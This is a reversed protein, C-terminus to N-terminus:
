LCGNPYQGHKGNRCFFQTKIDLDWINIQFQSKFKPQLSNPIKGDHTRLRHDQWQILKHDTSSKQQRRFKHGLLSSFWSVFSIEILKVNEEKANNAPCRALLCPYYCLRPYDINRFLTHLYKCIIFMSLADCTELRFGQLTQTKKELFAVFISSIKVM